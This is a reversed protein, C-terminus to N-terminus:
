KKILKLSVSNICYRQGTPQPGDDFVHGLHSGCRSCRVEIRHMFLTNDTETEVNESSVPAWFSPWGTGSEFKTESSFLDQGCAVCQYIGKEKSNWYTGTFARETGKKRCIRFQEPTLQRKWEQETKVIKMKPREEPISDRIEGTDSVLLYNDMSYALSVGSCLVLCLVLFGACFVFTKM